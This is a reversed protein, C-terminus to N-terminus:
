STAARRREVGCFQFVEEFFPELIAAPDQGLSFVGDGEILDATCPGRTRGFRYNPLALSRGRVGEMGTVWHYPGPINLRDNLFMACQQLSEAFKSEELTM